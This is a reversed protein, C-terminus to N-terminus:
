KQREAKRNARRAKRNELPESVREEEAARLSLHIKNILEGALRESMILADLPAKFAADPRVPGDTLPELPSSLKRPIEDVVTRVVNGMPGYTSPRVFGGRGM